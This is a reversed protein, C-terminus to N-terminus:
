KRNRLSLGLMFGSFVFFGIGCYLNIKTASFFSYVILLIAMIMFFLGIVFRLDLLNKM